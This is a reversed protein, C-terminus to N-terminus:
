DTDEVGVLLEDGVFEGVEVGVVELENIRLEEGDVEAVGEEEVIGDEEADPEVLGVIEAEIDIVAEVVSVGVCVGVGVIEVDADTVGLLESPAVGNGEVLSPETSALGEGVGLGLAAPTTRTTASTTFIGTSPESTSDSTSTGSSTSPSPAFTFSATTRSSKLTSPSKLLKSEVFLIGAFRNKLVNDLCVLGCLGATEM